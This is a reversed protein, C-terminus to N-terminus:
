GMELHVLRVITVGFVQVQNFNYGLTWFTKKSKLKRSNFNNLHQQKTGLFLDPPNGLSKNYHYQKIPNKQLPVIKLSQTEPTEYICLLSM